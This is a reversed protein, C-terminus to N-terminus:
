RHLESLLSRLFVEFKSWKVLNQNGEISGSPVMVEQYVIQLHCTKKKMAKNRMESNWSHFVVNFVSPLVGSIM